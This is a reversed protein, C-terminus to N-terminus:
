KQGAEETTDSAETKNPMAKNFRSDFAYGVGFASIVSGTIAM